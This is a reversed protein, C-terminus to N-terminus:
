RLAASRRRARWAHDRPLLDLFQRPKVILKVACEIRQQRFHQLGFPREELLELRQVGGM